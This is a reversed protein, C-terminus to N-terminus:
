KTPTPNHFEVWAEGGMPFGLPENGAAAMTGYDAEQAQPAIALNLPPPAAEGDGRSFQCGHHAVLAVMRGEPLCHCVGVRGPQVGLLTSGIRDMIEAVVLLLDDMHPLVTAFAAPRAFFYGGCGRFFCFICYM